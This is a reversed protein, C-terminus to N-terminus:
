KMETTNDPEEITTEPQPSIIDDAEVVEAYDFPEHSEQEDVEHGNPTFNDQADRVVAHRDNIVVEELRKRAAETDKRKLARKSKSLSTLLSILLLIGVGAGIVFMGWLAWLTTMTSSGRSTDAVSATAEGSPVEQGTPSFHDSAQNEEALQEHAPVEQGTPSFNDLTPLYPLLGMNDAALQANVEHADPVTDPQSPTPIVTLTPSQSAPRVTGAMPTGIFSAVFRAEGQAIRSLTGHYAVRTTYGTSVNSIANRSYTATATFSQAVAVHDQPTANQTSWQVDDLTYTRGAETITQPVLSLDPTHLHPFTRQRTVRRSQQRTGDQTMDITSIDLTLTGVYGDETEYPLTQALNAIVQALNNNSTQIYHWYTHERQTHNVDVQRTIDALQYYYGNRSFSDSSIWEPNENPLLEYVRLLERIGMDNYGEAVRIPFLRRAQPATEAPQQLEIREIESVAVPPIIVTIGIAEPVAEDPTHVTHTSPDATVGLLTDATPTVLQNASVPTASMVSALLLTAVGLSKPSRKTKM